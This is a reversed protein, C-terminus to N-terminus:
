YLNMRILLQVQLGITWTRHGVSMFRLGRVQGELFAKQFEKLLMKGRSWDLGQDGCVGGVGSGGHKM